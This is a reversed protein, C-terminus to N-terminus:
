IKKGSARRRAFGFGALGLAFLPLVAPLPVVSARVMMDDFDSDGFGDGFMLIISSASERFVAITFDAVDGGWANYIGGWTTYEGLTFFGFDLADGDDNSVFTDGQSSFKNGFYNSDFDFAYNTNGAESGLYEFTVNGAGSLYVGEGAAAQASSFTTIADGANPDLWGNFDDWNSPLTDATGGTTTIVIANANLAFFSLGLALIVEKFKM